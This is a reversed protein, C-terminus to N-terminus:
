FFIKLKDDGRGHNKLGTDIQKKNGPNKIM